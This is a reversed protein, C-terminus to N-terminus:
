LNFTDKIEDTTLGLAELKTKVSARNAEQVTREAERAESEEQGVRQAEEHEAVEAETMVIREGNESKAKYKTVM